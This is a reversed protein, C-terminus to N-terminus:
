LTAPILTIIAALHHTPQAAERAALVMTRRAASGYATIGLRTRLLSLHRTRSHSADYTDLGEPMTAVGASVAIHAIIRRPVIALPVFYGLRQCTKLLVLLGLRATASRTQEAAFSVEEATPTYIEFLEEETLATKLRPYATEHLRPM